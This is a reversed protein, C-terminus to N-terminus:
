LPEALFAELIPTLRDPCEVQMMHPADELVVLRARPVREAIAQLAAPPAAPDSAGAVCLTPVTVGHLRPATDIRSIARWASEWTSPRTALLRARVADAGGSRVFQPTFWRELTEEAVSAMGHRSAKAGREALVERAADPLTCPCAAVALRMVDGAHDLALTQAVMGGFSLGVVAAAAIGLEGLTHHVDGAYDSLSMGPAVAPSAGHGRLDLCVVRHRRALRAAVDDWSSLDLGVPHLLVAVPGSGSSRSNLVKPPM